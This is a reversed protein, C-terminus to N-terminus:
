KTLSSPFSITNSTQRLAECARSFEADLAALLPGLGTIQGERSHEELLLCLESLPKAGMNRASGKLTHAASTLALIDKENVARHITQIHTPADEFFQEVVSQFFEPDDEEGLARLDEIVKFDLPALKMLPKAQHDSQTTETFPELTKEEPGNKDKWREQPIWKFLAVELDALKVPKSLFDDMGSELCKERDGPLANATLAIIPVRPIESGGHSGDYSTTKELARGQRNEAERIKQTTEYGDMIPMQSDMLILDYPVRMWGDLAERGNAAVDVRVGIKELMRLAVKQNVVNDEVLLVRLRKRAEMAKVTDHTILLQAEGSLSSRRRHGDSLVAELVRHLQGQRVPKRLFAMLGAEEVLQIDGRQGVSTLMILSMSALLPDAKIQNALDLGDMELMQYDLIALTFPDGEEAASRMLALAQKGNWALGYRLGFITVCYQLLTLNTANDDVLCVRLGQLDQQPLAMGLSETSALGLQVTFWFRSGRGLESDMGIRGQMLRVLRQCIM